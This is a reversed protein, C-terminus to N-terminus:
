TLAFIDNKTLLQYM